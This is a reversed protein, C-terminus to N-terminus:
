CGNVGFSQAKLSSVQSHVQPEGMASGACHEVKRLTQNEATNQDGSKAYAKYGGSMTREGGRSLEIEGDGNEDGYDENFYGSHHQHQM